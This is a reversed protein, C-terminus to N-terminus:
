GVLQAGDPCVPVFEVDFGPRRWRNVDFDGTVLAIVSPGAGSIVAAVGDARLEAMLHASRPMSAARYHQHLRDRTAALLFAPDGTLAHVLLGAAAAYRLAQVTFLPADTLTGSVAVSGGVCAMGFAGMAVAGASRPLLRAPSSPTTATSMDGHDFGSPGGSLAM